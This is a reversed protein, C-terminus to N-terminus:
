KPPGFPEPVISLAEATIETPIGFLCEVESCLQERDKLRREVNGQRNSETVTLNRVVVARGPPFRTLMVATMFTAQSEYSAVIAREFDALVKAEQKATYGHEYVGDWFQQMRWGGSSSDQSMKFKWRGLQLSWKKGLILPIPEWFPAGYGVDVLYEVGDLRVMSVMHVDPNSMDAGCLRVDFDLAQLLQNLYYNNSYCTGGFHFDNMGALYEEASPIGVSGDRKKRWLKSINEFPVRELHCSVLAGLFKLDPLQRKLGLLELYRNVLEPTLTHVM